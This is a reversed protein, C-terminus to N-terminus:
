RMILYIVGMALVAGGATAIREMWVSAHTTRPPAADNGPAALAVKALVPTQSEPFALTDSM